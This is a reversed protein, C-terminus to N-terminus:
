TSHKFANLSFNNSEKVCRTTTANNHHPFFIQEKLPVTVEKHLAPQSTKGDNCKTYYSIQGVYKKLDAEYHIDFGEMDHGSNVDNKPDYVTWIINKKFGYCTDTNNIPMVEFNVTKGSRVQIQEPLAKMNFCRNIIDEKRFSLTIDNNMTNEYSITYSPLIDANSSFSLVTSILFLFNSKKM